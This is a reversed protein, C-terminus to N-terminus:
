EEKSLEVESGSAYRKLWSYVRTALLQESGRFNQEAGLITLQRYNPNKAQRATGKRLQAQQRMTASENSSLIDLIPLENRLKLLASPQYQAPLSEITRFRVGVFGKIYLTHNEPLEGALHGSVITAGLGHGLLVINYIGLSNLHDIASNLRLIANDYLQRYNQGTLPADKTLLPLQISLNPWGRGALESRLPSIVEPWDPHGDLDHLMIVGGYRVAQPTHTYIALFRSGAAELWVPEGYKLGAILQEAVAAERVPHGSQVPGALLLLLVLGCLVAFPWNSRALFINLHRSRVIRL